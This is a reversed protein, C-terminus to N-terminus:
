ELRKETTPDFLHIAECRVQLTISEGPSPM